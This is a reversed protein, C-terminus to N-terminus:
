DGLVRHRRHRGSGLESPVSILTLQSSYTGPGGSRDWGVWGLALRYALFARYRRISRRPSWNIGDQAWVLNKIALALDPDQQELWLGNEFDGLLFSITPALSPLSRTPTNM